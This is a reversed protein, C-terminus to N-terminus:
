RWFNHFHHSRWLCAYYSGWLYVVIVYTCTLTINRHSNVISIDDSKVVPFKKVNVIAQVPLKSLASINKSAINSSNTIITDAYPKLREILQPKPGSVPLNRKKLEAKLDTVKM